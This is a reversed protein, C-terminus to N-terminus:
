IQSHCEHLTVEYNIKLLTIVSKQARAAHSNPLNLIHRILIPPRRGFCYIFITKKERLM